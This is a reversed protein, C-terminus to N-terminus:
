VRDGPSELPRLWRVPVTLTQDSPLSVVNGTVADKLIGEVLYEVDTSLGLREAAEAPLPTCVRSTESMRIGTVAPESGLTQGTATITLDFDNVAESLAMVFLGLDAEAREPDGTLYQAPNDRRTIHVRYTQGAHVEDSRM